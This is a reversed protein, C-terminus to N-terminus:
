RLRWYYINQMPALVLYLHEVLNLIVVSVKRIWVAAEHFRYEFCSGFIEIWPIDISKRANRTWTYRYMCATVADITSGVVSVLFVFVSFCGCSNNFLSCEWHSNRVLNVAWLLSDHVIPSALQMSYLTISCAHTESKTCSNHQTYLGKM